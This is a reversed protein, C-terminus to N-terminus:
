VLHRRRRGHIIQGLDLARRRGTSICGWSGCNGTSSSWHWCRSTIVLERFVQCHLLLGLLHVLLLRLLLVLSQGRSVEESISREFRM